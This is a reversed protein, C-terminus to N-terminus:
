DPLKSQNRYVENQLRAVPDSENKKLDNSPFGMAKFLVPTAQIQIVGYVPINWEEQYPRPHRIEDKRCGKPCAILNCNGIPVQFQEWIHNCKPCKYVYTPM